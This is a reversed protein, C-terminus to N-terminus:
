SFYIMSDIFQGHSQIGCISGCIHYIGHFIVMIIHNWRTGGSFEDGHFGKQCTGSYIYIAEHFIPNFLMMITMIHNLNM